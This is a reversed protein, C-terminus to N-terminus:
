WPRALINQRSPFNVNNLGMMAIKLRNKLILGHKLPLPPREKVM